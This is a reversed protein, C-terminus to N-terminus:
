IGGEANEGVFVLAVCGVCLGWLFWCKHSEKKEKRAGVLCKQVRFHGM